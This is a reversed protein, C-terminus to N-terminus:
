CAARDHRALTRSEPHPDSAAARPGKSPPVRARPASPARTRLKLRRTKRTPSASCRLVAGNRGRAAATVCEHSTTERSFPSDRSFLAYKRGRGAIAQAVRGRGRCRVDRRASRMAKPSQNHRTARSSSRRRAEARPAMITAHCQGVRKAVSRPLFKGSISFFNKPRRRREIRSRDGQMAGQTALCRSSRARHASTRTRTTARTPFRFREDRGRM